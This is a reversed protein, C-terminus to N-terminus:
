QDLFPIKSKGMMFPQLVEPIDITGDPQQNQELLAILLRPVACATANLTHVWETPVDNSERTRINLRRAQYDTCNSGSSIEGFSGGVHAPMWAEVDFKRYAPAGLEDAPMDLVRYHLGLETFMECQLDLLEELIEESQEASAVVFMEVKSFQHVRYAGRSAACAHGTENRFCHGFAVKKIPLTETPIIQDCFMGALTIESTGCLVLDTGELEYAQKASSRPQFGTGELMANNALDPPLVPSYGKGVLKQMSWNVLALELLAAEKCTYYFRSGVVNAGAQFDFLGLKEGLDVHDLPTHGEEFVRVPVPSERLVTPEGDPVSPHTWNPIRSALNELQRSAETHEEGGESLGKKIVKAEEMLAQGEETKRITPDKKMLAAIENRRHRMANAQVKLKNNQAYLENTRAVDCQQNRREANLQAEHEREKLEKFDVRPRIASLTSFRSAQLYRVGLRQVKLRM